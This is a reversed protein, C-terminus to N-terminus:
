RRAGFMDVNQQQPQGNKKSPLISLTQEFHRNIASLDDANLSQKLTIIKVDNDNNYWWKMSEQDKYHGAAQDILQQLKAFSEQSATLQQSSQSQPQATLQSQQRPQAGKGDDGNGDVDEDSVIGLAAALGYRRGYTLASGYGQPDQKVAPMRLRGSVWEGSEHAIVTEVVIGTEDTDTFQLFSLGHKPLVPRLMEIINDLPAFKSKFHPNSASKEVTRFEGQATAIAKFITTTTASCNM